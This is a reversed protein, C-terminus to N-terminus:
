GQDKAATRNGWLLLGGQGSGAGTNVPRKSKGPVHSWPQVSWGAIGKPKRTAAPAPKSGEDALDSSSNCTGLWGWVCEDGQGPSEKDKQRNGSTVLHQKPAPVRAPGPHLGPVARLWPVSACLGPVKLSPWTLPCSWDARDVDRARSSNKDGHPLSLSQICVAGLSM